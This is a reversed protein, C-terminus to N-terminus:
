KKKGYKRDWNAPNDYEKHTLFSRIFVHGETQKGKIMKVYHIITILRYRNHRFDLVVFKGANDADKFIAKVEQFNHWHAGEVIAQWAEIEDAADRHAAAAAEKLHKKTIIHVLWLVECITFNDLDYAFTEGTRRAGNM